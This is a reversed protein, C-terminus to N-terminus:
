HPESLKKIREGLEAAVEKLKGKSDLITGFEIAWHRGERRIGTPLIPARGKAAILVVGGQIESSGRTGEPFIGFTGNEQLIRVATRIAGVDNGKRDVPFSGGARIIDGIIPMFLEEKAMFQIFRGAPLAKAVMFPDLASSHNSAIVLPTGPPPINEQGYVKLGQGRLLLPLNMVRVVWRYVLPNVQPALDTPKATSSSHPVPTTGDSTM